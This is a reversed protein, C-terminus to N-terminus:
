SRRRHRAKFLISPSNPNRGQSVTPKGPAPPHRLGISDLASRIVYSNSSESGLTVFPILWSAHVRKLSVPVVELGLLKAISLRHTGGGYICIRGERDVCVRIEDAGKEGLERQTRYGNDRIDLFARILEGYYRDLEGRKRLGRTWTLQGEEIRELYKQYEDTEEPPIEEVFLQRVVTLEDFPRARLDWDGSAVFMGHLNRTLHTRVNKLGDGCRYWSRLRGFPSSELDKRWGGIHVFRSIRNPDVYLPEDDYTHKLWLNEGTFRPGLRMVCQHIVNAIPTTFSRVVLRALSWLRFRRFWGVLRPVSM